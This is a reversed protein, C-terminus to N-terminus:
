RTCGGPAESYGDILGFSVRAVTEDIGDPARCCAAAQLKSVKVPCFSAGTKPSSGMIGSM